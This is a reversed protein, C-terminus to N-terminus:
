AEEVTVPPHTCALGFLRRKMGEKLPKQVSQGQNTVHLVQITMRTEGGMGYFRPTAIQM